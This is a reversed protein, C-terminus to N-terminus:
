MYFQRLMAKVKSHCSTNHTICQFSHPWISTSEWCKDIPVSSFCSVEWDSYHFERGPNLAPLFCWCNLYSRLNWAYRLACLHSPADQLFSIQTANQPPSFLVSQSYCELSANSHCDAQVGVLNGGLTVANGTTKCRDRVFEHVETPDSNGEKCFNDNRAINKHTKGMCVRSSFFQWTYLLLCYIHTRAITYLVWFPWM